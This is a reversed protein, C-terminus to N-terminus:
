ASYSKWYFWHLQAPLEPPRVAFKDPYYFCFGGGNAAGTCRGGGLKGIVGQGKLDADVPTTLSSGPFVFCHGDWAPSPPSSMFGACCCAPGTLFTAKGATLRQFLQGDNRVSQASMPGICPEDGPRRQRLVFAALLALYQTQSFRM